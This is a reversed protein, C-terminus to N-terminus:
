LLLPIAKILKTCVELKNQVGLNNPLRENGINLTELTTVKLWSLTLILFIRRFIDSVPLFYLLRLPPILFSRRTIRWDHITKALFRNLIRQHKMTFYQFRNLM